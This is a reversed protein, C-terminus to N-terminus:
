ENEGVQILVGFHDSIVPTERGDFVVRSSLVPVAESCWIHDIRMGEKRTDNEALLERWGDIIGRVTMAGDKTEALEYTDKWGCSAVRDYGQGRVEAPSNFDGLLWIRGTKSPVENVDAPKDAEDTKGCKLHEELRQWQKQFPEHADDWWGMHVTYFWDESGEPRIGLVKRTRWNEYDNCSSICFADTEAIDGRYLFAMGEDYKSYGIKGALWTWDYILGAWRLREAVQAAHNDQRIPVKMGQCPVYGRLKSPVEQQARLSQNVEQMAIIDPQEKRIMEVFWDLKQLYNEEILSHTNITLIKM